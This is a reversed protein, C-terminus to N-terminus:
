LVALSDEFHRKLILDRSFMDEPIKSWTLNLGVQEDVSALEFRSVKSIALMCIMSNLCRVAITSIQAKTTRMHCLACKRMVQGILVSLM